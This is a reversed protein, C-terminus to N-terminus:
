LLFEDRLLLLEDVNLGLQQCILETWNLDHLLGEVILLQYLLLDTGVPLDHISLINTNESMRLEILEELVDTNTEGSLVEALDQGFHVLLVSAGYLKLIEVGNGILQDLGKLGLFDCLFLKGRCFLLLHKPGNQGENIVLGLVDLALKELPQFWLILVLCAKSIDM